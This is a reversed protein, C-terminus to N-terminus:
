CQNEALSRDEAERHKLRTALLYGPLICASVVMLIMALQDRTLLPRLFFMLAQTSFMQINMTAFAYSPEHPFHELVVTRAVVDYIAWAAGMMIYWVSIAWGKCLSFATWFLIPMLLYNLSAFGVWLSAGTKAYLCSIPKPLIIQSISQVLLLYAIADAGLHDKAEPVLSVLIWAQASGLAFPVFGLLWIRPESALFFCMNGLDHRVTRKKDKGANPPDRCIFTAALACFVLLSLMPSMIKIATEEDHANSLATMITGTGFNVFIHVCALIIAFTSMLSSRLSNPTMATDANEAALAQATGEVLPGVMTNEVPQAVSAILVGALYVPMQAGNDSGLFVCISLFTVYGLTLFHGLVQSWKCGLQAVIAGAFFSAIVNFCFLLGNGISATEKTLVVETYAFLQNKLAIGFVHSVLFVMYNATWGLQLKSQPSM